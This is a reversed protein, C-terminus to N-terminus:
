LGSMPGESAFVSFIPQHDDLSSPPSVYRNECEANRLDGDNNTSHRYTRKMVEQATELGRWSCEM